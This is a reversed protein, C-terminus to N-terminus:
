FDDLDDDYLPRAGGEEGASRRGLAFGVVMGLLIAAPIYVFHSAPPIELLNM